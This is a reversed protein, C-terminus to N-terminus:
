EEAKSACAVCQTAAPEFDLRKPAIPEGCTLCYGYEGAQMRALARNVKSLEAKRRRETELSMAQGQMADLRSLRGVRAQDLEVPHAEAEGEAILGLLEQRRALLRTKLGELDLSTDSNM